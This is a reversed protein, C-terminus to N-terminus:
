KTEFCPLVDFKLSVRVVAGEDARQHANAWAQVKHGGPLGLWYALTPGRREQRLVKAKLSGRPDLVVDEPRILVDVREGLGEAALVPARYLRDLIKVAGSGRRRGPLYSAPGVFSAVFRNAPRHYLDDPSGWQEVRGQDMVGLQDAMLFADGLLHTVLIAAMRERKLLGRVDVCLRERLEPDLSSFPEDMLLLRPRPALARALATRQQQGGSLQHPHQDAKDALGLVQLLHGSRERRQEVPQAHLGFELNQRVTLHPFLSWDQFVIGVGRQQIPVSAGPEALRAGELQISGEQVDEFGALLRLLTTKGCGSPGLLCGIQGPQLSLDLGRLVPLSGYRHALGAVKL